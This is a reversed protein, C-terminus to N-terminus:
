WAMTSATSVTALARLPPAPDHVLDDVRSGDVPGVGVDALRHRPGIGALQHLPAALVDVVHDQRAHHMDGEDSARVGMGFDQRDVAGRRELDRAHQAHELARVQRRMAIGPHRGQRVEFAHLRRRLQGQRELARGPDALRDSRHHGLGARQGLIGGGPDLDVVLRQRRHDVHLRRQLRRLRRDVGLEAVVQAKLAHVLGALDVIREVGRVLHHLGGEVGAAVGAHRQLRARDQGVVVAGGGLEGDIMGGLRRVHHLAHEGLVHAQGLAVHAHDAGVDAAAVADLHVDIRVLHGDRTM